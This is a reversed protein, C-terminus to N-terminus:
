TTKTHIQNPLPPPTKNKELKIIGWVIIGIGAFGFIVVILIGASILGFLKRFLAESFSFVQSNNGGSIEIDVTCPETIEIYGITIKANSGSTYSMSGNGIFDFQTGNEANTIKIEIGDAITTSRNYSKGKYITQYNNWLYHRGPNEVQVRVKGPVIFKTENSDSLLIPVVIAAPLIFTVLAILSAGVIILKTGSKM